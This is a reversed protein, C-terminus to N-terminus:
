VPAVESRDAAATTAVVTRSLKKADAFKSLPAPTEGVLRVLAAIPDPAPPPSPDLPRSERAERDRLLDADMAMRTTTDVRDPKGTRQLIANTPREEFLKSGIIRM